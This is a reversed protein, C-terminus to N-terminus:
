VVIRVCRKLLSTKKTSSVLIFSNPDTVHKADSNWPQETFGGFVNGSTTKVVTLTNKVGDCKCSFKSGYVWQQYGQIEIGM